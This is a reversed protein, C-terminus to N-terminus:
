LLAAIAGIRMERCGRVVVGTLGSGDSVLPFVKRTVRTRLSQSQM